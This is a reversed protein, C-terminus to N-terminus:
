YGRGGIKRRPAPGVVRPRAPDRVDFVYGGAYNLECYEGGAVSARCQEWTRYICAPISLNVASVLCFPAAEAPQLAIVTVTSVGTVFVLSRLSM